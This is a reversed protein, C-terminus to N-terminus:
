YLPYDSILVILISGFSRQKYTLRKSHPVELMCVCVCSKCVMMMTILNSHLLEGSLLCILYEISFSLVQLTIFM